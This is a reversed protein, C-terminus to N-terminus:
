TTDSVLDSQGRGSFSVGVTQQYGGVAAIGLDPVGVSGLSDSTWSAGDSFVTRDSGILFTEDTTTGPLFSEPLRVTGTGTM